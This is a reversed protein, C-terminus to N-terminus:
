SPKVGLEGAVKGIMEHASEIATRRSKKMSSVAAFPLPLITLPMYWWWTPVKTTFSPFYTLMMSDTLWVGPWIALISVVVFIWPMMPRMKVRFGIRSGTADPLIQALLDSEFPQGYADCKFSRDDIRAFGALRGRRAATELKALIDGAALPVQLSPLAASAGAPQSAPDPTTM